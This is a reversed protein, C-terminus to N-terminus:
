ASKRGPPEPNWGRWAERLPLWLKGLSTLPLSCDYTQEADPGFSKKFYNIGAREAVSEDAFMGGWDYRTIGLDKLRLMDQWHLWRNARAVLSQYDRERERFCSGTYQLGATRGSVVYAHWVLPEGRRSASSLVLQGAACAAALWRPDSLWILKQRAFQDFFTRFDELRGEPKTTFELVLEDQKDARRIHYRCTRDFRAAINGEAVTLDTVLSLFPTHRAHAVPQAVKRYLLIDVDPNPPPAEDYWVEGYVAGRGNLRIM